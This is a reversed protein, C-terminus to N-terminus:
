NGARISYKGAVALEYGTGARVLTHHGGQLAGVIVGGRLSGLVDDRKAGRSKVTEGSLQVTQGDVATTSEVVFQLQAQRAFSAPGKIEQFRGIALTGKRIVVSNDIVVDSAVEFPVKKNPDKKYDALNKSYLYERLLVTVVTGEPLEVMRGGFATQTSPGGPNTRPENPSLIKCLCAIEDMLATALKTREVEIRVRTGPTACNAQEELRIRGKTWGGTGKFSIGGVGAEMNAQRWTDWLTKDTKVRIEGGTDKEAKLAVAPLARYVNAKVAELAGPILRDETTSGNDRVIAVGCPPIQALLLNASSLAVVGVALSVFLMGSMLTFLMKLRNM